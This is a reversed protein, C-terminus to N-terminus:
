NCLYVGPFFSTLFLFFSSVFVLPLSPFTVISPSQVHNFYLSNLALVDSCLNSKGWQSVIKEASNVSHDM